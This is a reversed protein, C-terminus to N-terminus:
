HLIILFGTVPIPELAGMYNPYELNDGRWANMRVWQNDVLKLRYFDEHTPDTTNVFVPVAALDFNDTFVVGCEAGEEYEIKYWSNTTANGGVFTDCMIANNRIYSGARYSTTYDKYFMQGPATGEDERIFIGGDNLIVINNHIAPEWTDTKETGANRRHSIFANDAGVITNHHFEFENDFCGGYMGGHGVVNYNATGWKSTFDDRIIRNYSIKGNKPFYNGGKGFLTGSWSGDPESSQCNYFINSVVNLTTNNINNSGGRSMKFVGEFYCDQVTLVGQCNGIVSVYDRFSNSFRFGCRDFVMNHYISNEVDKGSIVPYSGDYGVNSSSYFFSSECVFNQNTVYILYDGGKHQQRFSTGGFDFFIGSIKPNAGNLTFPRDTQGDIAYSDNAYGDVVYVRAMKNTEYWDTAEGADTYGRLTVNDPDIVVACSDNDFTYSVTDSGYVWITDGEGVVAAADNIATFPATQSGDSVGTFSSDVYIDAGMASVALTTFLGAIINTNFKMIWRWELLVYNGVQIKMKAFLYLQKLHFCKNKM